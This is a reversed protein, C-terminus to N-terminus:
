IISDESINCYLKEGDRTRGDLFSCVYKDKKKGEIIYQYGNKCTVIDNKKYKM